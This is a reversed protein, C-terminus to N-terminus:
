KAPSWVDRVLGPHGTAHQFSGQALLRPGGEVLRAPGAQSTPWQARAGFVLSTWRPVRCGSASPPFELEAVPARLVRAMGVM